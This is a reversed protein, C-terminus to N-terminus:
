LEINEDVFPALREKLEAVSMEEGTWYV